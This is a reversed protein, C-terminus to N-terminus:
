DQWSHVSGAFQSSVTGKAQDITVQRDVGPIAYETVSGGAWRVELKEIRDAAGLGFHVRLDSQSIYSRGSAVEGRLRRGGATCFVATGIADRPTKQVPDGILRLLLWHGARNAGDNRLLTPTDELNNVLIDLDGDNDFDGIATGRSCRPKLLADGASSGADFFRSGVNRFLLLRQKHTTSWDATDAQPYVHGNAVLLDLYGDNDFDFL